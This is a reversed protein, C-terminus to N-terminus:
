GATILTGNAPLTYGTLMLAPSDVDTDNAQVALFMSTDQNLTFSDATAIPADLVSNITINVTASTSYNAGDYAM